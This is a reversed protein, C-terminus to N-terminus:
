ASKWEEGDTDSEGDPETQNLTEHIVNAANCIHEACDMCGWDRAQHDWFKMVALKGCVYCKQKKPILNM